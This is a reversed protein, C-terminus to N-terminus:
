YNTVVPNYFEFRLCANAPISTSGSTGYGLRSPILLSVSGGGGILKLGEHAGDTLSNMDSFTATTTASSNDFFTGNMLQGTYNCTVSSNDNILSDTAGKKIIKYYLGSASKTYGTLSNAAMYNKIVLDDYAVQDSIVNVYFDLCQNGAITANVITSSGSKYGNVGYALHSPVLLRMQGGKYKLDNHIALMLGNPGIHGLLGDVHDLVTDAAIFKGDFSRLTYVYAIESTYALPKSPDGPTLIKYYTGTTDGGSTDRQMGTLGNAAIYSTIQQQDYQKIDPESGTKRCSVFGIASLLLLTFFTLKM